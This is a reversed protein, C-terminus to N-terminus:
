AIESIVIEGLEVLRKTIRQYESNYYTENYCAEAEILMALDNMLDGIEAKKHNIEQFGMGELIARVRERDVSDGGGWHDRINMCKVAYEIIAQQIDPIGCGLDHIADKGYFMHVYDRFDNLATPFNMIM